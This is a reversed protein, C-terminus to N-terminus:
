KEIIDVRQLTISPASTSRPDRAPIAAFADEGDILEGYITHRNNLHPTPTHTIFFQSGNTAPGSNAMALLGRKSFRLHPVFEDKFRYGPGGTGTGSPDGGQVMFDNIVRHFFTGDYFGQTALYVFNNVTIPANSTYLQFTMDGVDTRLIAQYSKGAKLMNAPASKYYRNRDNPAMAALPRDGTIIGEETTM